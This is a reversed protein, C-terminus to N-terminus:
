EGGGFPLGEPLFEGCAEIAERFAPDGPDFGPGAGGTPPEFGQDELCALLDGFSEPSVGPPGAEGSGPPRSGGDLQPEAPVPSAGGSPESPDGDGGGCAPLGISLAAVALLAGLRRATM